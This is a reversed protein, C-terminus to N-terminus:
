RKKRPRITEDAYFFQASKSGPPFRGVVEKGMREAWTFVRSDEDFRLTGTDSETHWFCAGEVREAYARELCIHYCVASRVLNQLGEVIVQNDDWCKRPM